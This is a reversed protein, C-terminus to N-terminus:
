NIRSTFEADHILMIKAIDKQRLKLALSLATDGCEDALNLNAGNRVIYAIGAIIKKRLKDTKYKAAFHVAHMLLTKGSCDAVNIDLGAKVLAQVLAQGDQLAMTKLLDSVLQRTAYATVVTFSDAM